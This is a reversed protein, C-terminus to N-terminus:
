VRPTRALYAEWTVLALSPATVSLPNYTALWLTTPGVLRLGKLIAFGPDNLAVARSQPKLPLAGTRWVEPLGPWFRVCRAVESGM